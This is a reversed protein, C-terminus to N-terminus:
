KQLKDEVKDIPQQTLFPGLIESLAKLFPSVSVFGEKNIVVGRYQQTVHHVLVTM